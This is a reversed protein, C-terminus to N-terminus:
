SGTWKKKEKRKARGTAERLKAICVATEKLEGSHKCLGTKNLVAHTSRKILLLNGIDTNTKDGDKFILVSDKPIKGNVAEWIVRHKLRWKNPEAVKVKVYGDRDTRESGIPRYNAPINGKKFWTKKAAEQAKHDMYEDWTKGKNVPEHGPEFRGTRGTSLHHNGIYANVQSISIEWGFKETFAKQIEKYSHGPIYGAMFAQEEESYKHGHM